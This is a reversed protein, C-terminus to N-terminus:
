GSFCSTMRRPAWMSVGYPGAAYCTRHEKFKFWWWGTEEFTHITYVNKYIDYVSIKKGQVLVEKYIKAINEETEKIYSM